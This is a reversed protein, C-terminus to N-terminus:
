EFIGSIHCYVNIERCVTWTPENKKPKLFKHYSLSGNSVTNIKSLILSDTDMRFTCHQPYVQLM